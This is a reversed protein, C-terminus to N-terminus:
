EADTTRRNWADIAKDVEDERFNGHITGRKYPSYAGCKGCKVVVAFGDYKPYGANYSVRIKTMKPKSGCFPCPKLDIM